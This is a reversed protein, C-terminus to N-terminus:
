TKYIVKYKKAPAGVHKDWFLTVSGTTVSSPALWETTVYPPYTNAVGFSDVEVDKQDVGNVMGPKTRFWVPEGYRAYCRDHSATSTATVICNSEVVSVFIYDYGTKHTGTTTLDIVIPTSDSFTKAM